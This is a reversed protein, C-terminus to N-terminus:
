NSEILPLSITFEAGKGPESVLEITGGHAEAIQRSIWLGLGLGGVRRSSAAREFREFVRAHDSPAIGIGLDRVRVCGRGDRAFVQVNIPWGRGYKIANALLNSVLQEIRMRDWRGRLPQGGLYPEMTLGCNAATAEEVFRACVDRVTPVLDISETELAFRGATIRSVDLLRDVLTQLREVQRAAKETRESITGFKAGGAQEAILRLSSQLQLKLATLPTRLEHGAISLFDDRLGIAARAQAYLRANQLALAARMTLETALVLERPALEHGSLASPLLVLAGMPEGGAILPLVVRSRLHFREAFVKWGDDQEVPLPQPPGDASDFQPALVRMANLVPAMAAQRSPYDKRASELELWVPERAHVAARSLAGEVFLDVTAFEALRASVALKALTQCIQQQDLTGFLQHSARTILELNALSEEAESRAQHESEFAQVRQLAQACLRGVLRAISRDEVSFSREHTFSVGMAGLIKGGAQLPLSILAGAGDTAGPQPWHAVSAGFELDVAARTEFFLATGSKVALAHPLRQERSFRRYRKLDDRYGIWGIMELISGGPTLRAISGADAGLAPVAYLTVAQVVASETLADGLALALQELQEARM